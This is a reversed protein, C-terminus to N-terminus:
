KGRTVVRQHSVEKGALLWLHPDNMGSDPGPGMFSPSKIIQPFWAADVQLKAETGQEM